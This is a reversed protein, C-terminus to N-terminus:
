TARSGTLEVPLKPLNVAMVDLRQLAKRTLGTLPTTGLRSTLVWHLDGNSAPVARRLGSNEPGHAAFIQVYYNTNTIAHRLRLLPERGQVADLPLPPLEYM